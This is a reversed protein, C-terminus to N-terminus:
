GHFIGLKLYVLSPSVEFCRPLCVVSSGRLQELLLLLDALSDSLQRTKGQSVGTDFGHEWNELLSNTSEGTRSSPYPTIGISIVGQKLM